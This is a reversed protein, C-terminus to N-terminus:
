EGIDEASVSNDKSIFFSYIAYIARTYYDMDSFHRGSGDINVTHIPIETGLDYITFPLECTVPPGFVINVVYDPRFPSKVILFLPGKNSVIITEFEKKILNALVCNDFKM